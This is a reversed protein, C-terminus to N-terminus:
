GPCGGLVLPGGCRLAVCGFSPMEYVVGTACCEGELAARVFVARGVVGVAADPRRCVGSKSGSIGSLVPCAVLAFVVVLVLVLVLVLLLLFVSM